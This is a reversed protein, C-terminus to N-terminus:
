LAVTLSCSSAPVQEKRKDREPESFSTTAAATGDQTLLYTKLMQLFHSIACGVGQGVSVLHLWAVDGMFIRLKLELFGGRLKYPKFFTGTKKIKNRWAKLTTAVKRRQLM